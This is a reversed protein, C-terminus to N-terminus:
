VGPEPDSSFTIRTDVFMDADASAGVWVRVEGPELVRQHGNFFAFTDAGLEFELTRTEGPELEVRQYGKLERVPRTASAVLDRIYLQATEVGPRAGTNTVECAVRLVDQRSRMENLVRLGSFEFSTYSLGYGFTFAPSPHVDLHFSTNGVSLQPAQADIDDIAMISEPTPPKGTNRHAYYVPIQGASRPISVPLRGSPNAEGLLLDALAPGGMAGPHWAYIIAQAQAVLPEIVLPRGAMVIAVLPKGLQGLREILAEQAGPLTIDARCHAEGSLIAEEGLALLIVDADAAADVAAAFQAASRDRSYELGPAFSLRDGLREELAAKLSVSSDVDGDFVWTGLQEYPQDALPGVLCLRHRASDLPLVQHDNKLLVCSEVALRHAVRLAHDTGPATVYQRVPEDFLGTRVKAHLIESVLQDLRQESLRGSAVLAVIHEDYAGSVMDMNVGALASLCAAERANGTVGHVSLQTISEWDSVVFGSFGWEDRLVEQLLWHNGTPPMGNLDSFSPMVSAAGAQVCALFPPLYVNRLELEPINTTNYDRGSESAGYGVFHKLCALLGPGDNEQYGRVMAVGMRATLLPDEGFSEAIRGWRPDRSVDLMPSFTWNVGQAGAETAAVGAGERVLEDNWSAAMGLPIPMVTRFGHIVDRGILVPIGHPGRERAVKQIETITDPDVENIVSGVRGQELRHYLEDSVKGQAGSVQVLQGAKEEPTMQALLDAVRNDPQSCASANPM